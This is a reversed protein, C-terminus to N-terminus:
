PEENGLPEVKVEVWLGTLEEYQKETLRNNAYFVDLKRQQQERYRIYTDEDWYGNTYQANANKILKKMVGYIM